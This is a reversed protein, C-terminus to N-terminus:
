GKLIQGYARRFALYSNGGDFDRASMRDLATLVAEPTANIGPEFEQLSSPDVPVCINGTGTHFSFSNRYLGRRMLPQLDIIVYPDVLDMQEAAFISVDNCLRLAIGQLVSKVREM